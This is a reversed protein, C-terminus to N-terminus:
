TRAGMQLARRRSEMAEEQAQDEAPKIQMWGQLNTIAIDALASIWDARENLCPIYHFEEGGAQLFLDRGEMAIEELTELCDSVFGPCV